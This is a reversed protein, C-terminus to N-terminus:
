ETAQDSPLGVLKNLDAVQIAPFNSKTTEVQPPLLEVVEPWAEVLKKVTTFKSVTAVVQAKITERRAVLDERRGELDYFAQVLENDALITTTYPTTKKSDFKAEVSVGALNIQIDDDVRRVRGGYDVGSPLEKRLAEIKAMTKEARAAAADGGLAFIRVREAWEFRDVKEQELLALVGSKKVANNAIAQTMEKTIRTM